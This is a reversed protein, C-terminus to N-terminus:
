VKTGCNPCFKTQVAMEHGCNPCFKTAAAAVVPASPSTTQIPAPVSSSVAPVSAPQSTPQTMQPSYIEANIRQVDDNKVEVQQQLDMIVQCIEDYEPGTVGATGRRTYYLEGLKTYQVQVLNKAKELDGKAQSLKSMKDAEFALKGAGSKLKGFFDSM